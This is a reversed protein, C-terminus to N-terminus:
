RGGWFKDFLDFCYPTILVLKLLREVCSKKSKLAAAPTPQDLDLCAFTCSQSDNRGFVLIRDNALALNGQNSHIHPLVSIIKLYARGASKPDSNAPSTSIRKTNSRFPRM